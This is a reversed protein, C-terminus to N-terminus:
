IQFHPWPGYNEMAAFSIMNKSELRKEELWALQADGQDTTWM